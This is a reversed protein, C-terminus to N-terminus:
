GSLHEETARFRGVLVNYFSVEWVDEDVEELGVHEGALVESIFLFRGRWRISGSTGVKRIRLHGAYEPAPLTRPFLRLAPAYLTSPPRQDLAEHPRETNYERQFRAFEAQQGGLDAAPPRTTEAKLTRHLREHRGNQQPQGPEIRQHQIGLKIWWVNLRSLGGIATSAFPTGNDTRIATPLGYEQFLHTFVAQAGATQTSTLAQCALLFRSHADSVTLPYCLQGDRTPFEGKFDAQWVDNPADAVLPTKGPHTPKPRRKRGTILGHRQLIAGATSPAPLDLSPQNRALWAVLKKPGWCPHAERAQVLATEVSAPTHHPCTLPQRSRDQLGALGATDYRELWKYGTKRSIGFRDCLETMSYLGEQHLALFRAREMVPETENWPM